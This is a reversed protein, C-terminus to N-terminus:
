LIKTHIKVGITIIIIVISIVVVVYVVFGSNGFDDGWNDDRCPVLLVWPVISDWNLDSRFDQFYVLINVMFFDDITVSFNVIFFDVGCIIVLVFDENPNGKSVVKFHVEFNFNFFFNITKFNVLVSLVFYDGRGYVTLFDNPWFVISDIPKSYDYLKM